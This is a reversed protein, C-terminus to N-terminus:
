RLRALSLGDRIPLIVTELRPHCVARRNYERLAETEVDKKHQGIEAVKGSWLVNDALIYAGPKLIETLASLYNPYNEKDADVFVLDWSERVNNLLELGSGTHLCIQERYNSRQVYDKAMDM